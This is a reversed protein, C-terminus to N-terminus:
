LFYESLMIRTKQENDKTEIIKTKLVDRDLVNNIENYIQHIDKEKDIRKKISKIEHKTISGQKILKELKIFFEKEFSTLEKKQSLAYKIKKMVSQEPKTLDIQNATNIIKEFVKLNEHLYEFYEENSIIQKEEPNAELEKVAKFFDIESIEGNENKIIKKYKDSRFLTILKTTDNQRTVRAKRPIKEIKKYLLKNNDRINRIIRLYKLESEMEQEEDLSANIKKFLDYSEIPEETLLQSDNGLLKIFNNVKDQAVRTINITDEIKTTPFFNYINVEDFKTGLREVRGVRQMIKTPNWPLDYNIIINSRHLNVGHSLVDTTILIDYDNDQKDEAINADFNYIVTKHDEENSNGTYKFVRKTAEERIVGELFDATDIFETFIIVKKNKLEGNLLEILKRNKPYKDVDKWLDRIYLFLNLDHRLDRIFEKKFEKAKYAKIDKGESILKNITEIDENEILEYVKKNYNKSSYFVQNEEFAKIVQIHTNISNDVSKKFSAIGSELRKVLLIKIFNAMMRQSSQYENKPNVAYKESLPTYKAYTLQSTIINLSEDFIEDLNDDFEYFEKKPPNVKPFEMHNKKLDEKYYKSIDSRTRRVMLHKLIHERIANTIRENEAEYLERETDKDIKKLPALLDKFYKELNKVKPEPLSSNHANQFLKIQSLLDQPSNNFPTASVLIVKKGRCIRSLYDYRNTDENRFLHSEDILVNKYNDSSYEKLIDELKGTSHVYPVIEFDELVRTWGGPNHKDILAPPAIVLTRGKLQQLLLAGMYTKGLGVVDSLFVGNHEELIAKAQVVADTQYELQKFEPPHYADEFDVTDNDIKEYLYEYIFKLYLEYPTINENIWTDNSITNIYEESVDTSEKWLENFKDLAFEYDADNRLQVNFELNHDLGPATFNSSGTIVEGPSDPDDRYTMIYIKSHISRKKYARVEIKGTKLGELFNKVGKEVNSTDSSNNMEETINSQTTEIFDTDPIREKKSKELVDFTKSDVGMGVLIRIHDMKDLEKELMHYGSLYFYGVLCDFERSKKLVNNLKISLHSGDENTIFNTSM